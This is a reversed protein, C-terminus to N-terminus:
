IRGERIKLSTCPSLGGNLHKLDMSAERYEIPDDSTEQSIIEFDIKGLGFSTSKGIHVEKAFQLLPVFHTLNGRYEITGKLGGLSQRSHQRSSFRNQEEWHLCSRVVEVSGALVLLEKENIAMEQDVAFEQWLQRIRRLLTRTLVVFDLDRAYRGENKVRLPTELVVRVRDIKQGPSKPQLDLSQSPPNEPLKREIRDYIIKGQFCVQLLSFTQRKGDIKRGIGKEGMQEFAYVFYPLNRIMPGFLILSFSFRERASYNVKKDDPPELVYPHPFNVQGTRKEQDPKVEFIRAYLCTPRLICSDCEKVRVACIAAKLSHGLAGRLMSGKFHPLVTDQNFEANIEFKSYNM